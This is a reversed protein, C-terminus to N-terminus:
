KIYKLDINKFKKLNTLLQIEKGKGSLSDSLYILQFNGRLFSDAKIARRLRVVLLPRKIQKEIKLGTDFGAQSYATNILLTCYYRDNIHEFYFDYPKGLQKGAYILAKDIIDDANNEIKPRLIALNDYEDFLEDLNVIDVGDASAHICKNDGQYLLSHTFLKGLFLGSMYRFGGALVIDGKKILNATRHYDAKTLHNNRPTVKIVMFLFALQGLVRKLFSSGKPFNSILHYRNLKILKSMTKQHNGAKM